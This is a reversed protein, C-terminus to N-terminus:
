KRRGERLGLRACFERWGREEGLWEKEEEKGWVESKETTKIFTVDLM